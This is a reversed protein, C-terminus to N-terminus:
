RTFHRLITEPEVEKYTFEVAKVLDDIYTACKKHQLSQIANFFGLDLVNRDPSNAPRNILKLKWGSKRGEACVTTDNSICHPKANDQQIKVIHGTNTPFNERIASFVNEVLFQRYFDRDVNLPVTVLCGEPRNRSSRKATTTSTFPWIGIKGDFFRKRHHDYRPVAVASLFMVKTIFRKSKISTKKIEEGPVVIVRGKLKMLYFWKEGVHVRNYMSSFPYTALQDNVHSLSWKVRDVRNYLTLYTHIKRGESKLDGGKTARLINAPSVGSAKSLANFTGRLRLPAKHVLDQLKSVDYKKRGVNGRCEKKLSRVVDCPDDNDKSKKEIRQFTRFIVGFKEAADTLAGRRLKKDIMQELLYNYLGQVEDNSLDKRAKRNTM